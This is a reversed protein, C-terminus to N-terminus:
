MERDEGGAGTSMRADESSSEAAWLRLNHEEISWHENQVPQPLRNVDACGPPSKREQALAVGLDDVGVIAREGGVVKGAPAVEALLLGVDVHDLGGPPFDADRADDDEHEEIAHRAFLDFKCTVVDELAVFVGALVAAFVEVSFVEVEVVDEGAVAAARHRPFVDDAGADLTIGFLAVAGRVFGVHLQDALGLARAPPREGVEGEAGLVVLAPFV